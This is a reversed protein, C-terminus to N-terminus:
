AQHCGYQRHRTAKTRLYCPASNPLRLRESISCLGFRPGSSPFMFYQGPRPWFLDGPGDSEVARYQPKLFFLGRLALSGPPLVKAQGFEQSLQRGNRKDLQGRLV